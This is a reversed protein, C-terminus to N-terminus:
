WHFSLSSQSNRSCENPISRAIFSMNFKIIFISLIVNVSHGTPPRCLQFLIQRLASDTNALVQLASFTKKKEPSLARIIPSPFFVSCSYPRSVKHYPKHATSAQAGDIRAEKLLPLM